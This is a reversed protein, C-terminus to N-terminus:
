FFFLLILNLITRLPKKKKNLEYSMRRFIHDILLCFNLNFMKTHIHTRSQEKLNLISMQLHFKWSVTPSQSKTLTFISFLYIKSIYYFFYKDM